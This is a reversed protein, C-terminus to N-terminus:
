FRHRVWSVLPAFTQPRWTFTFAVLLAAVALAMPWVLAAMSPHDAIFCIVLSALLAASGLLRLTKVVVPLLPQNGRVQRWHPEMSLALWGLGIVCCLQAAIFLLADPM